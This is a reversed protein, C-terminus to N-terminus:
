FNFTLQGMTPGVSLELNNLFNLKHSNIVGYLILDFVLLFGGQLIVSNGYGKLMDARKESKKSQHRLVFGGAIYVLDLGANILLLNELGTVHSLMDQADMGAIDRAYSGAISWTAIALNVGNWMANMQHFYKQDGSSHMWGNVGLTINAFAWSGLVYMGINTINQSEEFFEYYPNQADLTLSIVCLMLVVFPLKFLQFM